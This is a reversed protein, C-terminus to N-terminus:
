PKQLEKLQESAEEEAESVISDDGNLADQATNFCTVSLLPTNWAQELKTFDGACLRVAAMWQWSARPGSGLTAGWRRPAQMNREFYQTFREEHLQWNIRKCARAVVHCFFVGPGGTQIADRASTADQSCIWAALALDAKEVDGGAMYPSQLADLLLAHGLQFPKLKYILVRPPGFIAAAAFVPHM